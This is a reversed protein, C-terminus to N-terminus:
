KANSASGRQPSKARALLANLGGAVPFSTAGASIWPDADASTMSGAVPALTITGMGSRVTM